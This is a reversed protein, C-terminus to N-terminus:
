ADLAERVRTALISLSYPKVMFVVKSTEVGRRIIADDTHGSTYLVKLGPSLRQAQEALERGDMGPMVIDTLLLQVPAGSTLIKLAESANGASMVAYGQIKLAREAVFRVMADDEVILITEGGKPHSMDTAPITVLDTDVMPLSIIFKTGHGLQSAVRIRGGAQEVISHVVALGIGTGRGVDKTTFFPEFIRSQVADSMGQGTDSVELTLFSGESGPPNGKAKRASTIRLHGGNPMADRANASLNMLVQVLQGSDINVHGGHSGLNTTLEIDERLLRRLMDETDAVAADLDVVRREVVDKRSFALLQRTLSAARRGALRIEAVLEHVDSNEPIMRDLLDSSTSIVTLLNNFDHAVGGALEGISEMKQTHRLEAELARRQTVDEAIGAIRFVASHEDLVPFGRTRVWRIEGDPRVIQFEEDWQGLGHRNLGAEVPGRDEPRIVDIWEQPSDYLSQCSRGWITEYGPSVYLLESKALDVLWFVECISEALQRFRTESTQLEEAAARYETIDQVTGVMCSPTGDVDYEVEGRNALWRWQGDNQAYRFEVTFPRHTAVAREFAAVVLPSDLPHVLDEFAPASGELQSLGAVEYCEPSFTVIKTHLDIEWLGMKSARLALSLHQRSPELLGAAKQKNRKPTGLGSNALVM